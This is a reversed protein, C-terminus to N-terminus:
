TKTVKSMAESRDKKEAAVYLNKERTCDGDPQDRQKSTHFEDGEEVSVYECTIKKTRKKSM